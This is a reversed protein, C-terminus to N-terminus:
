HSFPCSLLQHFVQVLAESFLTSLNALLYHFTCLIKTMQPNFNLGLFNQWLWEFHISNYSCFCVRNEGSSAHIYFLIFHWSQRHSYFNFQYETVKCHCKWTYELLFKNHICTYTHFPSNTQKKSQKAKKKRKRNVRQPGLMWSGFLYM